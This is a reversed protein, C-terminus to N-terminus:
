KTEWRCSDDNCTGEIEVTEDIKSGDEATGTVKTSCDYVGVEGEKCSVTGVKVDKAGTEEVKAPLQESIIRQLATVNDEGGCGAFPVALAALVVFLALKM